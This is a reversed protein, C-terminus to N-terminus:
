LGIQLSTNKEEPDTISKTFYSVLANSTGGEAPKKKFFKKKFFEKKQFKKKFFKKKFFKKKQFKKKFFKKKFFKKPSCRFSSLVLM